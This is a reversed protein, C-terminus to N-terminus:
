ATVKVVDRKQSLLNTYDVGLQVITGIREATVSNIRVQGADVLPALADRVEIGAIGDLRTPPSTEIRDLRVGHDPLSTLQGKRTALILRTRQDVPHMSQVTGGSDLTIIRGTVDYRAARISQRLKAPTTVFGVEEETIQQFNFASVVPAGFAQVSEAAFLVRTGGDYTAAAMGYSGYASNLIAACDSALAGGEIAINGGGNGSISIGCSTNGTSSSALVAYGKVSTRFSVAGLSGSFTDFNLIAGPFSSGGFNLFTTMESMNFSPWGFIQNNIWFDHDTLLTGGVTNQIKIRTHATPYYEPGTWPAPVSCVFPESGVIGSAATATAVGSTRRTGNFTIDFQFGNAINFPGIQSVYYVAM